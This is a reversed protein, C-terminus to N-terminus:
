KTVWYEFGPANTGHAQDPQITVIQGGARQVLSVVSEQELGFM